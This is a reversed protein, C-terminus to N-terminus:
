IWWRLIWAGLVPVLIVGRSYFQLLFILLAIYYFQVPLRNLHQHLLRKLSQPVRSSGSAVPHHQSKGDHTDQHERSDVYTEQPESLWEQYQPSKAWDAYHVDISNSEARYELMVPRRNYFNDEYIGGPHLEEEREAYLQLDVLSSLIELWVESQENSLAIDLVTMGNGDQAHLDDGSRIRSAIAKKRWPRMKSRTNLLEHLPTTDPYHCWVWADKSTEGYEFVIPYRTRPHLRGAHLRQEEECFKRRNQHGVLLGFLEEIWDPVHASKGALIIDLPTEGSDCVQHVDAGSAVLNRIEASVREPVEFPYTSSLDRSKLWHLIALHLPPFNSNPYEWWVKLDDSKPGLEFKMVREEDTYWRSVWLGDPFIHQERLAYAKLDFSSAKLIDLWEDVVNNELAMTLPTQRYKKGKNCQIYHVDAGAELLTQIKYRPLTEHRLFQFILPHGNALVQNPDVSVADQQILWRYAEPPGDYDATAIRNFRSSLMPDIQGLQVLARMTDMVDADPPKTNPKFYRKYGVFVHLATRHFHLSDASAYFMDEIVSGV